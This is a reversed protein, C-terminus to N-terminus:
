GRSLAALMMAGIIAYILRYRTQLRRISEFTLGERSTQLTWWVHLPYLAAAAVLMRPVLNLLALAILLADALTFLLFSALVNRAPGFRVANTQIGNPLDSAYDRAEHTLHGAVFTLAFFSGIALGRGDAVRFLSYGMLFQLLGGGFHLASNLMPVGKVRFTPASYFMGFVALGIAMLLPTWGLPVLLLLGMALLSLCLLGIATRRVGRAIYVGEARNPDRLDTRAGCWDNLVFVHAVLCCSAAIFLSITLAKGSTLTGMAFLAGFIPTGQLLLVEDL